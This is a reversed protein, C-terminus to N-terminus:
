EGLTYQVEVVNASQLLLNPLEAEFRKGEMRNAPGSITLAGQVRGEPLIPVAVARVGEVREGRDAAYGRERIEALQERLATRDTVTKETISPLGHENLISDIRDEPLHALIAKGPANTPMPMRFGESVGLDLADAGKSIYLLVTRGNEEIALSAHEGTQTALEDVERKAPPFVDMRRRASEGMDLLRTSVRYTKEEKVVYGLKQLSILHDHVTSTPKELHSALEPLSAEGEKVLTELLDFTTKTTKIPIHDNM